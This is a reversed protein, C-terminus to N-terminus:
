TLSSDSKLLSLTIFNRSAGPSLFCIYSITIFSRIMADSYLMLMSTKSYVQFLNINSYLINCIM